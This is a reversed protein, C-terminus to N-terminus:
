KFSPPVLVHFSTAQRTHSSLPTALDKNRGTMQVPLFQKTTLPTVESSHAVPTVSLSNEWRFFNCGKRSTRTSSGCCYFPRGMNQGPSQVFKRKARCGCSCMPPTPKMTSNQVPPNRPTVMIGPIGPTSYSSRVSSQNQPTKISSPCLRPFSSSSSFSSRISRVPQLNTSESLLVTSCITVSSVPSTFTIPNPVSIHRDVTSTMSSQFTVCASTLIALPSSVTSSIHCSVAVATVASSLESRTGSVNASSLAIVGARSVNSYVVSCTKSVHVESDRSVSHHLLKVNNVAFFKSGAAIAKQSPHVGCTKPLGYARMKHNEKCASLTERTRKTVPSSNKTATQLNRQAVNTRDCLVKTNSNKLSQGLVNQQTSGGHDEYIKFCSRTNRNNDKNAVSRPVPKVTDTSYQEDTFSDDLWDAATFGYFSPHDTIVDPNSTVTGNEKTMASGSTLKTPTKKYSTINSQNPQCNSNSGLLETQGNAKTKECSEDVACKQRDLHDVPSQAQCVTHQIPVVPNV